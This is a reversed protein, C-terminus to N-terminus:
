GPRTPESIHILSLTKEKRRGIQHTRIGRKKQAMMEILYTGYFLVLVVLTLLGYPLRSEMEIM